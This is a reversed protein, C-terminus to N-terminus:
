NPCLNQIIIDNRMIALDALGNEDCIPCWNCMAKHMRNTDILEIYQYTDGCKDCTIDIKM